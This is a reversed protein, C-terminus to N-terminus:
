HGEHDNVFIAVPHNKVIEDFYPYAGLPVM